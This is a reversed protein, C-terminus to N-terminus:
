AHKFHAIDGIICVFLQTSIDYKKFIFASKPLLISIAIKEKKRYFALQSKKM